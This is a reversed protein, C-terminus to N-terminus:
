KAGRKNKESQKTKMTVKNEVSGNLLGLMLWFVPAVAVTSDNFIGAMMYGLISYMLIPIRLNEENMQSIKIQKLNTDAISSKMADFAKKLTYLVFILFCVLSGIGTQLAMQLYMSHPKTLIEKFFGQEAHSRSVYDNQPFEYIFTDPGSGWLLKDKLLPITRGWIYGRYTFLSDFNKPFVCVAEEITDTKGYITVYRMKHNGEEDVFLWEFGNYALYIHVMGQNEYCGIRLDKLNEDQILYEENAVDYECPPELGNADKFVPIVKDQELRYDIQLISQKYSVEIGSEELSISDLSTNMEKNQKMAAFLSVFSFIGVSVVIFGAIIFWKEVKRVKLRSSIWMILMHLQIWICIIIGTKSQSGFLSIMLLLYTVFVFSKKVKQETEFFAGILVPACLVAFSGVYNPNYLTMYSLNMSENTFNFSVQNRYEKLEEPIIFSLIADTQLIDKGM